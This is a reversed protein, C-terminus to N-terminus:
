LFLNPIAQIEAPTLTRNWIAMNRVQTASRAVSANWWLRGFSMYNANQVATYTAAGPTDYSGSAGDIYLTVPNATNTGHTTITIRHWGVSTIAKAYRRGVSTNDQYSTASCIFNNAAVGGYSATIYSCSSDLYPYLGGFSSNLVWLFFNTGSAISPFYVDASITIQPNNGFNFYNPISLYNSNGSSIAALTLSDNLYVGTGVVIADRSNGSTDKSDTALPYKAVLGATPGPQTYVVSSSTNGGWSYLLITKAGATSTPLVCTISTASVINVSGCAVGGVTASYVQPTTGIMFNTGTITITDGGWAFTPSVNSITPAPFPNATATFIQTNTYEGAAISYDIHNIKATITYTNSNTASQYGIQNTSLASFTGETIKRTSDLTSCDTPSPPTSDARYLCGYSRAINTTYPALSSVTYSISKTLNQPTTAPSISGFTLDGSSSIALSPPTSPALSAAFTPSSLFVTNILIALPLVITLFYVSSLSSSLKHM